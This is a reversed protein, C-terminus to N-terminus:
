GSNAKAYRVVQEHTAFWVSGKAKAYRILEEIIWYRSRHGIIHPHMTIQCVGGDDAGFPRRDGLDHLGRGPGTM